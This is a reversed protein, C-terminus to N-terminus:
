MLHGPLDQRLFQIAEEPNQPYTYETTYIWLFKCVYVYM